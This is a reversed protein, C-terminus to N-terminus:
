ARTSIALWHRTLTYRKNSQQLLRGDGHVDSLTSALTMDCVRLIYQHMM